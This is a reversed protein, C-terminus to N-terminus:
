MKALINDSAAEILDLVNEFGDDGGYYPDPIASISQDGYELFLALKYHLHPPCQEQLDALNQKDAALILDFETFDSTRVKRSHIGKFSYGRKEGAAMSRSDPPNGEHYGITGASDVVLKVGLTKARAKLVAEATPSRCINGLCVILVKKM